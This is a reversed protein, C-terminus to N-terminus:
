PRVAPHLMRLADALGKIERLVRVWQASTTGLIEIARTRDGRAELWAKAIAIQTRERDYKAREVLGMRDLDIVQVIPAGPSLAARLPIAERLWDLPDRGGAHQEASVIMDVARRLFASPRGGSIRRITEWREDDIRPGRTRGGM